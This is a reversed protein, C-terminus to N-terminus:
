SFYGAVASAISLAATAATLLWGRTSLRRAEQRYDQESQSEGGYSQLGAPLPTSGKGLYYAAAVAMLPAMAGTVLTILKM